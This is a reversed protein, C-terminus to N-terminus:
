ISCSGKGVQFGIVEKKHLNIGWFLASSGAFVAPAGNPNWTPKSTYDPIADPTTSCKSVQLAYSRAVGPPISLIMMVIAPQAQESVSVNYTLGQIVLGFGPFNWPKKCIRLRHDEAAVIESSTSFM